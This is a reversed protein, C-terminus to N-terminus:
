DTSFIREASPIDDCVFLGPLKDMHILAFIERVNANTIVLALKGSPRLRRYASLIAAIGASDMYDVEVLDIVFGDPSENVSNDLAARLDGVNSLDIEGSVRIIIRAGQVVQVEM